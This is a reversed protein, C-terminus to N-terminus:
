TRTSTPPSTSSPVRGTATTPWTGAGGDDEGGTRPRPAPSSLPASKKPAIVWDWGMEEFDVVLPYRCCREEGDGEKCDQPPANRRRRGAREGEVTVMELYMNQLVM